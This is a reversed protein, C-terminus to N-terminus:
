SSEVVLKIIRIYFKSTIGQRWMIYYIDPPYIPLVADTSGVRTPLVLKCVDPLSKKSEEEGGRTGM